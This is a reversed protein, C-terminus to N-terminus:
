LRGAITRLLGPDLPDYSLANGGSGAEKINALVVQTTTQKFVAWTAIPRRCDVFADEDLGEPLTVAPSGCGHCEYRMAGIDRTKSCHV